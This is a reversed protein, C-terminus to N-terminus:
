GPMGVKEASQAVRAPLGGDDRVFGGGGRPLQEVPQPNRRQEVCNDAATFRRRQFGIGFRQQQRRLAHTHRKVFRVPHDAVM